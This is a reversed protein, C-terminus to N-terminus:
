DALGRVWDPSQEGVPDEARQLTKGTSLDYLVYFGAFHLAGSYVAVERGANWFDWSRIFGGPVIRRIVRGDRFIRLEQAVELDPNPDGPRSAFRSLVRFGVMRGDASLKPDDYRGGKTLVVSRGTATVVRVNRRDDLDVKAYPQHPAALAEGCPVALLWLVILAHRHSM